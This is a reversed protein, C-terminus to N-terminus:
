ADHSLAKSMALHAIGAEMFVEGEAVFGLRAYFPVADVQANLAATVHGRESAAALLRLMLAHGVGSGRAEALVALRGIHGDPLLRGTGVARGSADRALVHLCVADHEDHELAEPVGQELVFVTHRIPMAESGLASWDGAEVRVSM